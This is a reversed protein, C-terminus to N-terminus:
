PLFRKMTRLLTDNEPSAELADKWIRQAEDKRGLMWLVEGLHAGIEGDPRGHWARRLYNAAGNLDGQRYLIWGMSDIIFYDEPALELAREILKRAEPLRLNRDALSYGLANHAHAHDPRLQILKRLNRELVDIRDIKEATMALDYLLDPNDPSRALAENLLDFAVGSQRADRLL